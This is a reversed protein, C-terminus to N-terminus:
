FDGYALARMAVSTLSMWSIDEVLKRTHRVAASREFEGATTAMQWWRAGDCRRCAFFRRRGSGDARYVCFISRGKDDTSATLEIDNGQGDKFTIV